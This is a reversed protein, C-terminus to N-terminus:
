SNYGVPPPGERPFFAPEEPPCANRDALCVAEMPDTIVGSDLFQEAIPRTIWNLRSLADERADGMGRVVQLEGLTMVGGNANTNEGFM